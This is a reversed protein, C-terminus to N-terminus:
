RVLQEKKRKKAVEEKGVQRRVTLSDGFETRPQKGEGERGKEGQGGWSEM